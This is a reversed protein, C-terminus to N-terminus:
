LRYYKGRIPNKTSWENEELSYIAVILCRWLTAEEKRFRWLWKTLLAINKQRFWDIGLGGYCILCSTCNWNALHAVSNTSGRTWVFKKIMKELRNIVSAPAQGLIFLYCPLSNLVSQVHTLRDGESLSM